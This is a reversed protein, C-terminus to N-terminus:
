NLGYGKLTTDIEGSNYRIDFNSVHFVILIFNLNITVHVSAIKKSQGNFVM